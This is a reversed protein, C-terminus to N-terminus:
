SGIVIVQQRIERIVGGGDYVRFRALEASSFAPPDVGDPLVPDNGQAEASDEGYEAVLRQAKLLREAGTDIEVKKLLDLSQATGAM